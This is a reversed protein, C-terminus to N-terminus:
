RAEALVPAAEAHRSARVLATVLDLRASTAEWIRPIADWGAIAAELETRAMVTSGAALHLLGSAHSRATDAPGAWGVIAETVRASWREAEDPRHAALYARVGTVVFPVLLAREHAALAVGLADECVSIAAAANGAVLSSEALGWMPPLILEVEEARRGIDLSEGLLVRAHDVDGRGFAVYGLADRSGLTGRRSGREVLEIEAAVIADDWRGEAWAVHASVAAMVHRCYSQEIEDAYRLGERLGISAVRYDMVKAAVAAASRYATVGSSELRADRSVRAVELMADLGQAVHGRHVEIEAELFDIDGPDPDNSSMRLPRADALLGAAEDIRGQDLELMATFVRIDSLVFNGAPSEALSALEADAQRLIQRREERPRVDRRAMGAMWVLAGAAEAPMGAELYYRRALMASEQGARVDDVAFAAMCYADYLEALEKAPLDDPANAAARAYLEFAEHRSSMASAAEAGARAARYAEARLGAREFHVSAHIENAGVLAGGFEGARAHFKRLEPAPVSQYLADRLLQHRFDYYGEDVFQFPYLVSHAVLEDFAADLDTVQRDMVGALVRPAFCRGIVAGGRAVAQADPSLRSVRALIADEITDPVEANRIARGDARAVDGLAGLLEEIHLPIGDTREYIASAVERPAPLGTDLILTTVLATQEYTLPALRAEEALRQSLLRARWERHVSEVPLEDIRYSGILLLPRDRALRALEGIVELSVEDAWQLDEFALVTPRDIAQVIVDAIDRVLMRRAGLLDGGSADGGGRRRLELLEDGITGFAAPNMRMTRALDLISALTVLRDQPSLDGQSIRFGAADAKRMISRMLRTKGIGAEGALLILQGRGAAAETIRREALDLLDDRGVLLPSLLAGLQTM